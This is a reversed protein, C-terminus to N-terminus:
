TSAFCRDKIIIHRDGDLTIWGQSRLNGLIRTITVRTTGIATALNQHTLRYSLRTGVAVPQGIEEKLLLLLQHLRDEVRRIGAIALLTETQRMRKALQPLLLQSLRPSAEVEGISYWKLYVDSLAHYSPHFSPQASQYIEKLSQFQWLGFCTSAGAWGIVVEEGNPCFTTLQVLGRDVQWVGQPLLPIQEGKAYCHLRRTENAEYQDIELTPQPTLLM